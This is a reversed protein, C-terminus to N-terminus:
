LGRRNRQMTSVEEKWRLISNCKQLARTSLWKHIWTCTAVKDYIKYRIETNEPNM